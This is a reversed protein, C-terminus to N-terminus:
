NISYLDIGPAEVMLNLKQNLQDKSMTDLALMVFLDRTRIEDVGGKKTSYKAGPILSVHAADVSWAWLARAHPPTISYLDIGPVEVM